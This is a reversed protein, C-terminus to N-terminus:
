CKKESKDLNVKEARGIQVAGSFVLEEIDSNGAFYARAQRHVDVILRGAQNMGSQVNM